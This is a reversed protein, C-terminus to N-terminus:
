NTGTFCKFVDLIVGTLFAAELGLTEQTLPCVPCPVTGLLKQVPKKEMKPLYAGELDVGM